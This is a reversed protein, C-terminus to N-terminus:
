FFLGVTPIALRHSDLIVTRAKILMQQEEVLLQDLRQGALLYEEDNRSYFLLFNSRTQWSNGELQELMINSVLRRTRAPPNEAWSNLKYAREVRAQLLFWNEERWPVQSQHLGELENEISLMAEQGRLAPDPMPNGRAPVVYRIDPHALALWQQYQRADLMQAERTYFRQLAWEKHMQDSM